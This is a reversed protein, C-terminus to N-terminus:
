RSCGSRSGRNIELVKIMGTNELSGQRQSQCGGQAWRVTNDKSNDKPKVYKQVAQNIYNAVTGVGAAVAKPGTTQINTFDIPM